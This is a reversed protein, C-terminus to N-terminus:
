DNGVIVQQVAMLFPFWEHPLMGNWDLPRLWYVGNDNGRRVWGRSRYMLQYPGRDDFIAFGQWDGIDVEIRRMTAAKTQQGLPVKWLIQVQVCQGTFHHRNQSQGCARSVM